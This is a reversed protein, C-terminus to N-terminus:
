TEIYSKASVLQWSMTRTNSYKLLFPLINWFIWYGHPSMQLCLNTIKYSRYILTNWHGIFIYPTNIDVWEARAVGYPTLMLGSLPNIGRPMLGNCPIINVKWWLHKTVNVPPCNRLNWKLGMFEFGNYSSPFLMKLTVAQDVTTSSNVASKCKCVWWQKCVGGDLSVYTGVM